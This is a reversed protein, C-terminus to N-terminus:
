GGLVLYQTSPELSLCWMLGLIVNAGELPRSCSVSKKTNRTQKMFILQYSKHWWRWNNGCDAMSSTIKHFIFDTLFHFLCLPTFTLSFSLTSFLIIPTSTPWLCGSKLLLLPVPVANILTQIKEGGGRRVNITHESEIVCIVAIM